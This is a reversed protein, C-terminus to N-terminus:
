GEQAPTLTANGSQESQMQPSNPVPSKLPQIEARQEKPLIRVRSWRHCDKCIVVFAGFYIIVVRDRIVIKYCFRGSDDRGHAGLVTRYHCVCRHRVFGDATRDGLDDVNTLSPPPAGAALVPAPVGPSSNAAQAAQGAPSPM